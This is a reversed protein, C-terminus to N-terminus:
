HKEKVLLYKKCLKCFFFFFAALIMHLMKNTVPITYNKSITQIKKKKLIDKVLLYKSIFIQM